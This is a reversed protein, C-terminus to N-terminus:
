VGMNSLVMAVRNVVAALEPHSTEFEQLTGAIGSVAIEARVSALTDLLEDRAGDSLNESAANIQDELKKLRDELM